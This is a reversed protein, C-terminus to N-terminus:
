DGEGRHGVDVDVEVMMGPSLSTKPGQDIAIRVPIRQTIKTFNGSPNPDPLLAFQSTAAHGIVRIHGRFTRDPYADVHIDVPQGKRLEHINTEKINAEVWVDAPRHMMLIPQGASVYQGPQIFTKDVVGDGPSRIVRDDIQVQERKLAAQAEALKKRTVSLKTELLKHTPLAMQPNSLLGDRANTLSTQDMKVQRSARQFDAQASLLNYYDVDRQQGSVMGKGFLRDSRHYTKRAQELSAHAAKMAAQDTGLLRKAEEIGGQLHRGTLTMDQQQYRLEARISAVRAQLEQLRLQQPRSYLRAVVDNSKLRDGEIPSFTTVRGPVRSSVTIENTRVRADDESVHSNRYQVWQVLWALGAVVAIAVVALKLYGPLSRPRAPRAGSTQNHESM